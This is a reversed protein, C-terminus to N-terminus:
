KLIILKNGKTVMEDEENEIVSADSDSPLVEELTQVEDSISTTDDYHKYDVSTRNLSGNKYNYGENNINEHNHHREHLNYAEDHDDRGEDPRNPGEEHHNPGEDHRKDGDEDERVEM